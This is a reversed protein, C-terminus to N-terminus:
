PHAANAGRAKKESAADFAAKFLPAASRDGKVMRNALEHNEPNDIGRMVRAAEAKSSYKHVSVGTAKHTLAYQDDPGKHVFFHKGTHVPTVDEKGGYRNAMFYDGTAVKAAGEKRTERDKKRQEAAAQKAARERAAAADQAAQKANQAAKEKAANEAFPDGGRKYYDAQARLYKATQEHHYASGSGADRYAKAAAENLKAAHEHVDALGEREKDTLPRAKQRAAYDANHAMAKAEGAKRGEVHDVARQAHSKASVENGAARQAEAAKRHLYAAYDATGRHNYDDRAHEDAKGAARSAHNAFDAPAEKAWREDARRQWESSALANQRHMEEVRELGKGAKGDHKYRYDFAASSAREHAAKAALASARTGEKEARAAAALADAHAQEARQGLVGGLKSGDRTAKPRPEPKPKATGASAKEADQRVKAFRAHAAAGMAKSREGAGPGHGMGRATSRAAMQGAEHSGGDAIVANYSKTAAHLLANSALASGEPQTVGIKAWMGKGAM